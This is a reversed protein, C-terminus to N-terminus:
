HKESWVNGDVDFGMMPQTQVEEALTELLDVPFGPIGCAALWACALRGPPLLRSLGVHSTTPRPNIELVMATREEQNWLYDVGVFGALGPVSEVARRLVPLAEACPEPVVGGCYHFRGRWVRMRQRGAGILCPTGDRSVLFSASMPIGPHFPQLLADAPSRDTVSVSGAETLLFTDVSGAGDIPKLVAPFRVDAPIAEGARIMRSEPTPVGRDQFQEMLRLKDGALDIAEPDSGLSRAGAAELSRALGALVGTTEPAILLMYDVRRALAILSESAESEPLRISTWPGPDAPELAGLNVGVRLEPAAVAAFDMALSRRMARGEARWSGAVGPGALGGTAWEHILITLPVLSSM